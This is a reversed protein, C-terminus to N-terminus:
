PDQTDHTHRTGDRDAPNRVLAAWRQYAAQRSIGLTAAIRAWSLGSHHVRLVAQALQEETAAVAARAQTVATAANDLDDIHAQAPSTPSDRDDLTEDTSAFTLQDGTSRHPGDPVRQRQPPTM